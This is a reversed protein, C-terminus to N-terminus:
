SGRSKRPSTRGRSPRAAQPQPTVPEVPPQTETQRPDKESKADPPNVVAADVTLPHPEAFRHIGIKKVAIIGGPCLSIAEGSALIPFMGGALGLELHIGWNGEHIGNEKILLTTLDRHSLSITSGTETM